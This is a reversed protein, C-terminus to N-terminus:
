GLVLDFHNASEQWTMSPVIATYVYETKLAQGTGRGLLKHFEECGLEVGGIEAMVEVFLCNSRAVLSAVAGGVVSPMYGRTEQEGFVAWQCEQREGDM